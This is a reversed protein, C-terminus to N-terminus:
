MAQKAISHGQYDRTKEADLIKIKDAVWPKNNTKTYNVKGRKKEIAEEAIQLIYEKMQTFIFETGDNIWKM